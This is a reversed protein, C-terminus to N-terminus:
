KDVCNNVRYDFFAFQNIMGGGSSSQTSIAMTIIQGFRVGQFDGLNRV